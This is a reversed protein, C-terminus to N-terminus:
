RGPRQALWEAFAAGEMSSVEVFAPDASGEDMQAGAWLDQGVRFVVCIRCPGPPVGRILFRGDPRLQGSAEFDTRDAWVREPTAGPPAGIARGWISRSPVLPVSVEGSTPSVEHVFGIRGDPLPGCYVTLREGSEVEEFTAANGLIWASKGRSHPGGAIRAAGAMHSPWDPVRVRLRVGRSVTLSLPGSTEPGVTVESGALDEPGLPPLGVRLRIDHSGESYVAFSGEQSVSM